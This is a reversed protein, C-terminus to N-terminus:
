MSRSVVDPSAIGELNGCQDATRITGSVQAGEAVASVRQRWGLELGMGTIFLRRNVLSPM